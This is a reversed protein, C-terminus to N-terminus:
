IQNPKKKTIKLGKRTKGTTLSVHELESVLKNKM